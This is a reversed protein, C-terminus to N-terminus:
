RNFFVKIKEIIYRKQRLTLEPYAPISCTELSGSEAEPFSGKKYGLYEFCGQLHLPVPYYTRVEIGEKNLYAELGSKESTRIIYLHYSHKYGNPVYPIKIPLGKLQRNFFDANEIRGKIWKDLYKLKIDLIAAQLNDLRSNYGIIDHYYRKNSGHVHLLKVKEYINESNTVVMGGDGFAGLNKSPFFSIAGADGMSGVKRGKYESGIAQAADEIVRLGHGKAIKLIHDMNACLGYLHVVVIAKTKSTIKKEILSPDMNYTAPDIDVFVPRAGVLAVAEATAMFTFPTTIVEDGPGIDLAKLSLILADTGSAVGVGYKTDCYNAINKELVDVEKGLIFNQNELVESIKVLAEKKFEQYQKKLDLTPIKKM